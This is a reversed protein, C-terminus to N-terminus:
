SFTTAMHRTEYYARLINLQIEIVPAFLVFKIRESLRHRLELAKFEELKQLTDNKIDETVDPLDEFPHQIFDEIVEQPTPHNTFISQLARNVFNMPLRIESPVKDISSLKKKFEPHNEFLYKCRTYLALEKDNLTSPRRGNLFQSKLQTYLIKFKM